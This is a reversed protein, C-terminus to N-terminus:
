YKCLNPLKCDEFKLIPRAITNGLVRINLQQYIIHASEWINRVEWRIRDIQDESMSLIVSNESYIGTDLYNQYYQYYHEVNHQHSTNGITGYYEQLHINKCQISCVDQDTEDCIYAGYRGCIVCIPEGEIPWRQNVSYQVIPEADEESKSPLNSDPVSVHHQNDRRQRKPPREEEAM